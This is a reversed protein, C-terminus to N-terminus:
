LWILGTKESNGQRGKETIEIFKLDKQLNLFSFTCKFTLCYKLIMLGSYGRCYHGTWLCRHLEHGLEDNFFGEPGIILLLKQILRYSIKQRVELVIMCLRWYWSLCLPVQGSISILGSTKSNVTHVERERQRELGESQECQVMKRVWRKVGRKKYGQGAAASSYVGHVVRYVKFLLRVEDWQQGLPRTWELCGMLQRVSMRELERSLCASVCVDVYM